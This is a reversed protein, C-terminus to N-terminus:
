DDGHPAELRPDSIFKIYRGELEKANKLIQIARSADKKAVLVERVVTRDGTWTIDQAKLLSTILEHTSEDTSDVAAICIMEESAASQAIDSKGTQCGAVLALAFSVQWKRFNGRKGKNM